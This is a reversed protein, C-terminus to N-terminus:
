LVDAFKGEMRKFFTYGLSFIVIAVVVGVAMSSWNPEARGLLVQRYANIFVSLPNIQFVWRYKDPFFETAYAIPTLYFLLQLALSYMYQIDRYFLNLVSLILSIGFTFLFQIAFIPIFWLIHFTFPIGYWIMMIIFLSFALFMDIMKALINALILIERPFYIKKILSGGEVLASMSGTTASSFFTWPLFAAYIFLPYPVGSANQKLIFGFVFSMILIQFLPNLLVWFYGLFSQKYRAKIERMTLHKILELTNSM